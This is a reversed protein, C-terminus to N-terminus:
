FFSFYFVGDVLILTGNAKKPSSGGGLISCLQSVAGPMVDGDEGLVGILRKELGERSQNIVAGLLTNWAQESHKGAINDVLDKEEPLLTDGRSLNIQEISKRSINFAWSGLSYWANAMDSAEESVYRNQSLSLSRFLSLSVSLSLSLSPFLSLSLSLSPSFSITGEYGARLSNSM